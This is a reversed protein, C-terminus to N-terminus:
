IIDIDVSAYIGALKRIVSESLHLPPYARRDIDIMVAFEFEVEHMNRLNCLCRKKPTLLEMILCIQKEMCLTTDPSLLGWGHYKNKILSKGVNDSMLWTESPTIQLVETIENPHIKTGTIQFEVKVRYKRKM